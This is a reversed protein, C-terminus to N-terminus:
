NKLRLPASRSRIQRFSTPIAKRTLGLDTLAKLASQLFQLRAEETQSASIDKPYTRKFMWNLGMLTYTLAEKKSGRSGSPRSKNVYEIAWELLKIFGKIDRQQRRIFKETHDEHKLYWNVSPIPSRRNIRSVVMYRATEKSLNTLGSLMTQASKLLPRLEALISEPRAADDMKRENLLHTHLILGIEDLAQIAEYSMTAERPFLLTWLEKKAADPLAKYPISSPQRKKKPPKARPM